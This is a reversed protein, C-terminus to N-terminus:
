WSWRGRSVCSRYSTPSRRQKSTAKRSMMSLRFCLFPFFVWSTLGWSRRATSQRGWSAGHWGLECGRLGDHMWRPGPKAVRAGLRQRGRAARLHRPRPPTQSFIGWISRCISTSPIRGRGEPVTRYLGEVASVRLRRWCLLVPKTKVRRAAPPCHQWAFAAESKPLSCTCLAAKLQVAECQEALVGARAGLLEHLQWGTQPM